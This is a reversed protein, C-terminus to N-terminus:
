EWLSDCIPLCAKCAWLIDKREGLDSSLIVNCASIGSSIFFRIFENFVEFLEHFENFYLAILLIIYDLFTEAIHTIRM